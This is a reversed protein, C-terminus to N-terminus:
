KGATAAAAAAAAAAVPQENFVHCGYPAKRNMVTEFLGQILYLTAVPCAQVLDLTIHRFPLPAPRM